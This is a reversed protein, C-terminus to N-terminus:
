RQIMRLKIKLQWLQFPEIVHKVSKERMWLRISRNTHDFNVRHNLHRVRNALLISFFLYIKIKGSDILDIKAYEEPLKHKKNSPSISSIQQTSPQLPLRQRHKMSNKNTHVLNKPFILFLIKNKWQFKWISSTKITPSDITKEEITMEHVIPTTVSHNNNHDMSRSPALLVTSPNSYFSALPVPHISESPSPSQLLSMHIVAQHGSDSCCIRNHFSFFFFFDDPGNNVWHKRLLFQIKM